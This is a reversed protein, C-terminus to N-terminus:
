SYTVPLHHTLFLPPSFTLPPKVINTFKKAEKKVQMGSQPRMEEKKGEVTLRIDSM